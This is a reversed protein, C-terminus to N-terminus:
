PNRTKTPSSIHVTSLVSDDLAMNESVRGALLSDDPPPVTYRILADGPVVMIEKVFPEIFARRETLDSEQLFDRMDQAYAAITNVDDLYSRRKSLVARADEAAHDLREKRERHEKIM